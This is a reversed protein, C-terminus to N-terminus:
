VVMQGQYNNIVRMVNIQRGSIADVYVLYDLGNYSGYIEYCFIEKGRLPILAKHVDKIALKKSVVNIATNESVNFVPQREHHYACYGMAEIGILKGNDLGVKVKVLDTYYVVGDMVPALNVYAVGEYSNYWVPTLGDYGMRKAHMVAKEKAVEESMRSIKVTFGSDYNIIKGGQKSVTIFVDRGRLTAEVVFAEPEASEGVVRVDSIGYEGFLEKVVEVARTDDIEKLKELGLFCKKETADSFPGDYIIEPYEFTNEKTDGGASLNLPAFDDLRGNIIRYDDTWGESIDNVANKLRLTAGYVREINEEYQGCPEGKGLARGYCNCMDGVQNILKSTKYYVENDIPLVSLGSVATQSYLYADSALMASESGESSVLLKSLNMELNDVGTKFDYFGSRYVSELATRNQRDEKAIKAFGGVLIAATVALGCIAAIFGVVSRKRKTIM